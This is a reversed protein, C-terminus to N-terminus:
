SLDRLTEVTTEVAVALDFDLLDRRDFVGARAIQREERVGLVRTFQPLCRRRCDDKRLLGLRRRAGHKPNLM